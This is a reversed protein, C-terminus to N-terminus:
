LFVKLFWTLVKRLISDHTSNSSHPINKGRVAQTSSADVVPSFINSRVVGQIDEVILGFNNQMLQSFLHQKEVRMENMKENM